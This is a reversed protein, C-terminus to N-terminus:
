PPAGPSCFEAPLLYDENGDWQVPVGRQAALASWLFGCTAGLPGDLENTMWDWLRTVREDGEWEQEQATHVRQLHKKACAVLAVFAAKCQARRLDRFVALYAEQVEKKMFAFAKRLDYLIHFFDVTQTCEALGGDRMCARVCAMVCARVCVCACVRVRPCRPVGEPVGVQNGQAQGGRIAEALSDGPLMTAFVGAASAARRPVRKCERLHLAGLCIACDQTSLSPGKRDVGSAALPEFNQATCPVPSTSLWRPWAVNVCRTVSDYQVTHTALVIVTWDGSIIKYTADTGMSTRCVNSSPAVKVNELVQGLTSQLISKSSIVVWEGGTDVKLVILQDPQLNNWWRGFDRDDEPM